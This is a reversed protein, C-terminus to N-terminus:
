RREDDHKQAYINRSAENLDQHLDRREDRTLVGDSKYEREERRIDRQDSRLGKAEDRTLEGSRVGQAIRHRENRQRQNVGPDRTARREHRLNDHGAGESGDPRGRGEYRGRPEHRGQGEYRGRGEYAGRGQGDHKQAYIHRSSRNLDHRLHAREGRSLHGDTRFAREERRIHRQEAQLRHAEPRTIQGSTVGQHIRAQQNHQRQNVSQGHPGSALATIPLTAIMAVLLKMKFGKM